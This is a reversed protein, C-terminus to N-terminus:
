GLGALRELAARDGVLFGEDETVVVGSKGWRSM